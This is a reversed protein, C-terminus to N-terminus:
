MGGGKRLSRELRRRVSRGDFKSVHLARPAFARNLQIATDGGNGIKQAIVLTPVYVPSKKDATSM